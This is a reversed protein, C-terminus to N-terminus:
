ILLFNVIVKIAHLIEVNMIPYQELRPIHTIGATFYVVLDENEINRNSDIWDSITSGGNKGDSQYIYEGSPYREDEHFKL